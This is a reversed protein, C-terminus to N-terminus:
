TLELAARLGDNIQGMLADSIHGIVHLVRRKHVVALNYCKVLSPGALGCGVGSGARPDIFVTTPRGRDALNGTVM